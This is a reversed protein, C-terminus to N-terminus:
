SFERNPMERGLRRRVSWYRLFRNDKIQIRVATGIGERFGFGDCKAFAFFSVNCAGTAPPNSVRFYSAINSTLACCGV